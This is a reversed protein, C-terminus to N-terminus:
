KGELYAVCDYWSLKLVALSDVLEFSRGKALDRVAKVVGPWTSPIYDHFCVVIEPKTLLPLVLEIDQKVSEYAHHGDIFAMDFMGPRLSPLVQESRGVHGIIRNEVKNRRINSWWACLTDRDGLNPDGRHWDVSHVMTAGASAMLVAGFGKFSGVELVRKDKALNALCCAEKDSTWGEIDPRRM